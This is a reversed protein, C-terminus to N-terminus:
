YGTSTTAKSARQYAFLALLILQLLPMGLNWYLEGLGRLLFGNEIVKMPAVFSTSLKQWVTAPVGFQPDVATYSEVRAGFEVAYLLLLVAGLVICIVLPWTRPRYILAVSTVVGILGIVSKLANLPSSWAAQLSLIILAFCIWSAAILLNRIKLM